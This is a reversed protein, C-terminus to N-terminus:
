AGAGAPRRCPPVRAHVQKGIAESFMRRARWLRAKLAANTIGLEHASSQISFEHMDYTQLASRYPLPLRKVERQELDHLEHGLCEQGPTPRADRLQPLPKRDFLEESDNLSIWQTRRSKRRSSLASNIGITVLWSSFRVERRFRGISVLAHLMAEQVVDETDDANTTLEDVAPSMGDQAAIVLEDDAWDRPDSFPSGASRPFPDLFAQKSSAADSSEGTEITTL